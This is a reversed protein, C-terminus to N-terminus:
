DAWPSEVIQEMHQKDVMEYRPKLYVLAFCSGDLITSVRGGAAPHFTEGVLGFILLVAYNPAALM